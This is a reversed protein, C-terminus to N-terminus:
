SKSIPTSFRESLLSTVYGPSQTSGLLALIIEHKWAGNRKVIMNKACRLIWNVFACFTVIEDVAAHDDCITAKQPAIRIPTRALTLPRAVFAIEEIDESM